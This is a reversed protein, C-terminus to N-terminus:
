LLADNIVRDAPINKIGKYEFLQSVTVFRYGREYLTSCVEEICEATPNSWGHCLVIAGDYACNLIASKVSRATANQDYDKTNITSSAHVVPMNLETAVAFVNNDVALYGPRIYKMKVGLEREVLDNLSVIEEKIQAKSLETLYPHNYTHNGLEFGSELAYSLLATGDGDISTGNVFLTGAGEFMNLTDIITTTNNNTITSYSPADDFTFAILKYDEPHKKWKANMLRDLKEKKAQEENLLGCVTCKGNKFTHDAKEGEAIGCRTCTKPAQCTAAQWSHGLANGTTAGCSCKVPETCTAKSYTHKHTTSSANTSSTQTTNSETPSNSQAANGNAAADAANVTVTTELENAANKVASAANSLFDTANLLTSNLEAIELNIEANDKLFGKDKAATLISKMVSNIDAASAKTSKKVTEADENLAEVALVNNGSDLYINFHPNIKMSLVVAYDTPKVFTTAFDYVDEADSTSLDDGKKGCACLPLLLVLSLILVSFKKM